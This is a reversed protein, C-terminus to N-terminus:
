QIITNRILSGSLYKTYFNILYTVNSCSTLVVFLVIFNTRLQWIKLLESLNGQIKITKEGQDKSVNGSPPLTSNRSETKNLDLAAGSVSIQTATVQEPEEPKETDFKMSM